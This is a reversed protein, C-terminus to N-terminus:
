RKNRVNYSKGTEYGEIEVSIHVTNVKRMDLPMTLFMQKIEEMEKLISEQKQM